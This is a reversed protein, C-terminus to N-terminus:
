KPGNGFDIAEKLISQNAKVLEERVSEDSFYAECISDMVAGLRVGRYGALMDIMRNYKIPLLFNRQSREEKHKNETRPQSKGSKTAEEEEPSSYTSPITEEVPSNESFEPIVKLAGDGAFQGKEAGATIKSIDFGRKKAM